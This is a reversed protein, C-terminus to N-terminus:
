PKKYEYYRMSNMGEYDETFIGQPLLKVRFIQIQGSTHRSRIGGNGNHSYYKLFKIGGHAEANGRIVGVAKDNGVNVFNKAASIKEQTTAGYVDHTMMKSLIPAILNARCTVVVLSGTMENDLFKIFERMEPTMQKDKEKENPYVYQNDPSFIMVQDAGILRKDGPKLLVPKGRDDKTVYKGGHTMLMVSGLKVGEHELFHQIEEELDQPTKDNNNEGDWNGTYFVKLNGGSEKRLEEIRTAIDVGPTGDPADHDAASENLGVILIDVTKNEGGEESTEETNDDGGGLFDVMTVPNNRHYAYTTQWPYEFARPDVKIMRGLTPYYPRMGLDYFEGGSIEEDREAGNFGYRYVDSSINRGPMTM